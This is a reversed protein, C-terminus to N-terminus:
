EAGVLEAVARAARARARGRRAVRVALPNEIRIERANVGLAARPDSLECGAEHLREVLEAAREVPVGPAPEYLAFWECSAAGSLRQGFALLRPAPVGYRELHFLVRGVNAGASRYPTAKLWAKLRGVPAFERGRVLVANRGAIQLSIAGPPSDYFPAAVAPSPWAVAVEPVACVAEGALWVLRQAGARSQLQDRVSRRLAHKAAARLIQYLPPVGPGYACLARARDARSAGALSAHLAGLADARAAEPVPGRRANQGDLFAFAGNPKVLVHKATLDPTDFGASHVAALAAGLDRALERRAGPSLGNDSLVTRLDRAGRVEEVLLFARGAHEGVAAWRPAPLHRANLEHLLQAERSCRSVWGFGARWNRLKERWGVVHQRKLYFNGCPLEVRCVHRDPHGSVVEGPLDLFASADRLGARALAGAFHAHVNLSV